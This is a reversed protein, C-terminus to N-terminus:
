NLILNQFPIFTQHFQKKYKKNYPTNADQELRAGALGMLVPMIM